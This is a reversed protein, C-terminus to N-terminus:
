EILETSKLMNKKGRSSIERSNYKRKKKQDELIEVLTEDILLAVVKPENIPAVAGRSCSVLHVTESIPIELCQAALIQGKDYDSLVAEKGM